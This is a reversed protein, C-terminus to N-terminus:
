GWRWWLVLGAIVVAAGIRSRGTLLTELLVIPSGIAFLPLALLRRTLSAIM